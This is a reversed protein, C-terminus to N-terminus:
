PKREYRHPEFQLYHKERHCNCCLLQCKDLEKKITNTLKPSSISSLSFNKISPDIHHFELADICKGYGCIECKGGKYELCLKKLRVKRVAVEARSCPKCYPNVANGNKRDRRPYFNDITKEEGCYKCLKKKSM